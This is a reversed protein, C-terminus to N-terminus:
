FRHAAHAEGAWGRKMVFGDPYVYPHRGKIPANRWAEIKDYIKKNLSSVTSPSVKVDWLAETVDEVRRTSVGALYMEIIAEEVSSELRRCREIVATGFTTRRLKPVKLRVEGAKTHLKRDYGGARTDGARKPENTVRRAAFDIPKPM